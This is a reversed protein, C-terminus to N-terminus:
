PLLLGKLFAWFHSLAQQQVQTQAPTQNVTTTLDRPLFPKLSAQLKHWFTKEKTSYNDSFKIADPGDIYYHALLRMDLLLDQTLFSDRTVSYTMQMPRGYELPKFENPPM